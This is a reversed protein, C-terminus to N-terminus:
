LNETNLTTELFFLSDFTICSLLEATNCTFTFIEHEVQGWFAPLIMVSLILLLYIQITNLVEFNCCVFSCLFITENFFQNYILYTYACLSCKENLESFQSFDQLFIMLHLLWVNGFKAKGKPYLETNCSWM